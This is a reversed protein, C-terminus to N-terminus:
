LTGDKGEGLWEKLGLAKQLSEETFLRTGDDLVVVELELEGLKLLGRSVEKPLESM